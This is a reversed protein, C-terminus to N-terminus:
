PQSCDWSMHGKQGCNFCEIDKTPSTRTNNDRSNDSPVALASRSVTSEGVALVKLRIEKQEMAAIVEDLSPFAPLHCMNARRQEFQPNLGKLFKFIRRQELYKKGALINASGELTLPSYHDLDTWLHKLETAYQQVTKEEQSLADIKEETEWTRMVSGAGSYMTEVTNWVEVATSLTELQGSVSMDMSTLLWAVVISNTADWIKWEDGEKDFPEKCGPEVFRQLGKAKLLLM